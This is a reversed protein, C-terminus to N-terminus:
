MKVGSFSCNGKKIKTFYDLGIRGETLEQFLRNCACKASRTKNTQQRQFESVNQSKIQQPHRNDM